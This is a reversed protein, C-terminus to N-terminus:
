PAVSFRFRGTSAHGDASIVRWSVEYEGALLARGLPVSVMRRNGVGPQPAGLAIAEGRADALSVQTLAPEVRESFRLRLSTPAAAVAEGARPWSQELMTHASAGPATIAFFMAAIALAAVHRLM